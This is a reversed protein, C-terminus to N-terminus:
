ESREIQHPLVMAPKRRLHFAILYVQLTEAPIFIPPEAFGQPITVGVPITRKGIVLGQQAPAEIELLRTRLTGRHDAEPLQQIFPWYNAVAKGLYRPMNMDGLAVRDRVREVAGRLTVREGLEFGPVGYLKRIKEMSM